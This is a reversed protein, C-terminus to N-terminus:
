NKKDQNIMQSLHRYSNCKILMCDWTRTYSRTNQNVHYSYIDPLISPYQVLLGFSQRVRDVNEELIGQWGSKEKDVVTGMKMFKKHWTSISLHRPTYKGYKTRYNQQTQTDLKTEVFWLGCQMKEQLTAM